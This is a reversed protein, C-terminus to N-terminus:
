SDYETKWDIAYRGEVKGSLGLSDVIINAQEPTKCIGFFEGTETNKLVLM